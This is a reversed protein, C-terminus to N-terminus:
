LVFSECLTVLAALHTVMSHACDFVQLTVLFANENYQRALHDGQETGVYQEYRCCVCVSECACVLMCLVYVYM